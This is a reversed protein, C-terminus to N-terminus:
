PNVLPGYADPRRDRYFAWRERVIKILDMDLDRVVLEPSTDSAVEGVFKGEPDVFYSTGYFDNDGYESEIGVRNIAGVYYENAVASAPQELKWLYSSLGRSTASPNFVIEAGALGLARWGEPFHRDYCIYVGVKGVATDFVPWGLNGPRFYFKEWFGTVQPIHHKRYKGLYSGDADIVVATNYLLGDMEREYVPAVIVLNLEAALAAIRDTTPGPVSEAYEYFKADQLQCFYPGYFLEQFCIVQAGQAAAARAYDEHVKVMSEKDGTWSTQVLAARVIGM